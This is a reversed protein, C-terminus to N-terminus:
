TSVLASVYDVVENLSDIYNEILWQTLLASYPIKRYIEKSSSISQFLDDLLRAADVHALWEPSLPTFVSAGYKAQHGEARIWTEVHEGNTPVGSFTPLTNLLEALASPHLLYCEYMRRPLFHLKGEGFVTKLKDVKSNSKKDGDLSITINVPLISGASSLNRYIDACAQAHKGELDGTSRLQAIITGVPLQRGIATV